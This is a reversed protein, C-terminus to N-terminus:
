KGGKEKEQFRSVSSSVAWKEVEFDLIIYTSLKGLSVAYISVPIASFDLGPVLCFSPKTPLFIFFSALNDIGVRIVKCVTRGRLQKIRL